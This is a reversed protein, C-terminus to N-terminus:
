RVVAQSMSLEPDVTVRVTSGEDPAVVPTSYVPNTADPVGLQPLPSAQQVAIRFEGDRSVQDTPVQFFEIEDHGVWGLLEREEEAAEFAFVKLIHSSENVVVVDPNEDGQAAVPQAVFVLGLAAAGALASRLVQRIMM